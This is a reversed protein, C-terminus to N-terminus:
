AQGSGNCLPCTVEKKKGDDWQDQKGSGNCGTCTVPKSHKGM